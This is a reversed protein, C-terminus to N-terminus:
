LLGCCKKWKNPLMNNSVLHCAAQNHVANRPITHLNDELPEARKLMCHMAYSWMCQLSHSIRLTIAVCVAQKVSDVDRSALKWLVDVSCTCLNCITDNDIHYDQAHVSAGVRQAVQEPDAEASFCLREQVLHRIDVFSQSDSM